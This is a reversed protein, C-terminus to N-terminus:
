VPAKFMLQKKSILLKKEEEIEQINLKLKIKSVFFILPINRELFKASKNRTNSPGLTSFFIFYFPHL